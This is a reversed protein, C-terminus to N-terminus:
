RHTNCVLKRLKRTRAYVEEAPSMDRHFRNAALQLLKAKRGTEAITSTAVLSVAVALLCWCSAMPGVRRWASWMALWGLMLPRAPLGRVEQKPPSMSWRGTTSRLSFSCWCGGNPGGAAVREVNGAVWAATPPGAIRTDGTKASVNVVQWDHEPTFFFM